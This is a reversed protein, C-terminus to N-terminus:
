DEEEKVGSIIGKLEEIDVEFKLEAADRDLDFYFYKPLNEKLQSSIYEREPYLNMVREYDEMETKNFNGGWISAIYQEDGYVNVYVENPLDKEKKKKKGNRVVVNKIIEKPKIKFTVTEIDSDDVCGLQLHECPKVDGKVLQIYTFGYDRIMRIFFTDKMEKIENDM